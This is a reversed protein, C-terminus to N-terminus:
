SPPAYLCALIPTASPGAWRRTTCTDGHMALPQCICSVPAEPYTHSNAQLHRASARLCRSHAQRPSQTCPPGLGSSATSACALMYPRALWPSALWDRGVRIGDEGRPAVVGASSGSAFAVPSLFGAASRGVDQYLELHLRRLPPAPVPPLPDGGGQQHPRIQM